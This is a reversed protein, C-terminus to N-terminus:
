YVKHTVAQLTASSEVSYQKRTKRRINRDISTASNKEKAM